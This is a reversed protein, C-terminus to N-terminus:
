IYLGIRIDFVILCAMLLLAAVFYLAYHAVNGNQLLVIIRSTRNIITAALRPGLFDIVYYDFQASLYSITKTTRVLFLNYLCDFYFANRLFGPSKINKISTTYACIGVLVGCTTSIAALLAVKDDHHAGLTDNFIKAAVSAVGTMVIGIIITSFTIPIKNPSTHAKNKSFFLLIVIKSMYVATCFAAFIQMYFCIKNSQVYSLILEKSYYGSFPYVGMLSLGCLVFVAFVMKMESRVNGIKYVDQEHTSHIVAGAALFLGAKYFAHTALHFMAAHYANAGCAAFMYGLQSCTSYAIIKKLDTQYIGCVGAFCATAAGLYLIATSAIISHTFLDGLRCILFVGATVMTAAHILASVPTPGEMADPLWVHFLLQASKGACAAMLLLCVVDLMTYQGIKKNAIVNAQSLISSIELSGYSSFILAIALVFACDSVRNVVFAKNAANSASHKEYWFGILLYSCFGVGEWGFFLQMMDKACVLMLMCFTFLSIYAMFLKYRKDKSMYETSYIHVICSVSNVVVFMLSSMTDVKVSWSTGIISIWDFIKIDATVHMYFLACSIIAAVSVCTCTIVSVLVKPARICAFSTLSGVLPLFLAILYFVPNM